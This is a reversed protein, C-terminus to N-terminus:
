LQRYWLVMHRFLYYGLSVKKGSVRAIGRMGCILNQQKDGTLRVRILYCYKKTETLIPKPSISIIEGQLTSEPRAHLYLAVRCDQGLVTANREDLSIEAVLSKTELIEFLKEGPRVAKGELKNSEGIDLIGDSEASVKSKDIYWQNRRIDISSKEKQLELLKVQGRKAVEQFSQRQILDYQASTKNFENRASNLNFVREETDFDVIADGAKVIDGSKFHCAAIRGDFPSYAIIEKEPVIEFDASVTQRVRVAVTSILFLVLLILMIRSPRLWERRDMFRNVMPTRHRNLIFFLSEGYNERLLSLIASAVSAQEKQAFDLVWIFSVNEGPKSGPESVPVIYVAQSTKLMYELSAAAEPGANVSSLAEADVATIKTVKAFPRTLSVLELCYESNSNVDAQGSVSIIKPQVGRVDIIASRSYSLAIVSNNVVHGAWQILDPKEFAEHGLRIIASLANLKGKLLLVEKQQQQDGTGNM